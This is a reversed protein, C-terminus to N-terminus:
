RSQTKRRLMSVRVRHACLLPATHVIASSLAVINAQCARFRRQGKNADGGGRDGRNAGGDEKNVRTHPAANLCAGAGCSLALALRPRSRNRTKISLAADFCATGLM